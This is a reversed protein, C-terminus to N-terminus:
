PALELNVGLTRPEGTRRLRYAIGIRLHGPRDALPTVDVRDVTIRTEWRGVAETVRDHIRRRTTVTDPAGIFTVLGAGYSPHMLQEGARTSLIVRLNQRVSAEPSPYALRGEDDPMPLLPWGIPPRPPSAGLTM